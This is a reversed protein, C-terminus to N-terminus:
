RRCYLRATKILTDTDGGDIGTITQGNFTGGQSILYATKNGVGSNFHVGGNDPYGYFTDAGRLWSSEPGTRTARVGDPGPMNRLRASRIDEGLGPPTPRRRGLTRHDVIEGMIDSISENM